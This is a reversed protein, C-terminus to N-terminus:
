RFQKVVVIKNEDTVAVVVAGGPHVAVERRGTNGTTDYQIEDVKLHLFKEVSYFTAEKYAKFKSM